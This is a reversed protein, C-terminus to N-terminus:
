LDSAGVLVAAETRVGSPLGAAEHWDHLDWGLIVAYPLGGWLGSTTTQMTNMDGHADFWVVGASGAARALGGAAGVAHTCDGELVLALRGRELAARVAESTRAAIKGLNTVTDRTRESLPMEIRVPADVQHGHDELAPILGADLIAAPGNASGWRGIDNAFPVCVIAINMARDYHLCLLLVICMTASLLPVSARRGSSARM